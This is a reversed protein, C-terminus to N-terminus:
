HCRPASRDRDLPDGVTLRGSDLSEQHARSDLSSSPARGEELDLCARAADDDVGLVDHGVHALCAATTLGVHGLGVVTVHMSSSRRIPGLRREASRIPFSLNTKLLQPGIPRLALIANGSGQSSRTSISMGLPSSAVDFRESCTRRAAEGMSLRRADDDLLSVISTASSGRTAGPSSCEPRVTSFLKECRRRRRLGRGPPGIAGGRDHDHAYGEMGDPRSAFLLVDSVSMLDPVDARSGLLRIRGELGLSRVERDVDDRMPGDGAVLHVADPRQALVRSAVDIHTMPDKEWTLAALSLLVRADPALGLGARLDARSSSPHLRRLDVGNPIMIVRGPEIDFLSTTESRVAEALAVIMSTRRMMWRHLDRRPHSHLSAPAGGIRRYVLPAAARDRGLRLVEAGGRRTGACCGAELTSRDTSSPARCRRVCTVQQRSTGGIRDWDFSCCLDSRAM